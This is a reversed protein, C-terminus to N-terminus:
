NDVTNEKGNIYKTGSNDQLHLFLFDIFIQEVQFNYEKGRLVKLLLLMYLQGEMTTKCLWTQAQCIIDLVM